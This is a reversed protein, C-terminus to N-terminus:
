PAPVPPGDVCRLLYADDDILRDRDAVAGCASV